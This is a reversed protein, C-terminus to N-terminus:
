MSLVIITNPSAFFTTSSMTFATSYGAQPRGSSGKVKPSSVGRGRAGEPLPELM